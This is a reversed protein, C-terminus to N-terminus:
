KRLEEIEKRLKEVLEDQEAITKKLKSIEEGGNLKNLLKRKENISDIIDDTYAGTKMILSDLKSDAPYIVRAPLQQLAEIQAELRIM